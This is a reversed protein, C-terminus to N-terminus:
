AKLANVGLRKSMWVAAIAFIGGLGITLFASAEPVATLTAWHPQGVTGFAGAGSTDNYIIQFRNPGIVVSTAYNPLGAFTGGNWTGGYNILTFKTGMALVSGGLDSAALAAASTINLNGRVDTRDAAVTTSNIEYKYSGALLSLSPIPSGDLTLVGISNGPSLTGSSLVNGAIIGTGQLTGGAGITVNGSGTGSGSTNNVSLIGGNVTTGGNFTNGTPRALTLKGTNAADLVLAINDNSNALEPKGTVTTKGINAAGTNAGTTPGFTTTLNGSITLTSLTNSTNTIGGLYATGSTEVGAVKQNFGAVDFTGSPANSPNGLTLKTGTPLADNIGLAVIGSTTASSAMTMSTNGSYTAHNAVIIKGQGGSLGNTFILTADGTSKIVGNLTIVTGPQASGVASTFGAAGTSGTTNLDIDNGYSATYAAAGGAGGSTFLLNSFNRAFKVTSLNSPGGLSGANGLAVQNANGLATGTGAGGLILSGTFTNASNLNLLTRATANTGGNYNNAVTIDTGGITSNIGQGNTSTANTAMIISQSTNTINLTSGTINYNGAANTFSISNATPTFGSITVTGATNPFLADSGDSWSNAGANWTLGSSTWTGTGGTGTTAGNADWSLNAACAPISMSVVCGFLAITAVSRIIVSFTNKMRDLM